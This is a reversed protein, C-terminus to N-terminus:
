RCATFVEADLKRTLEVSRRDGVTELVRERSRKAADCRQADAAIGVVAGVSATQAVYVPRSARAADLQQQAAQVRAAKDPDIPRPTADWAKAAQGPCPDSQYSVEKGHECKFVQQAFASGSFCALVLVGARVDM